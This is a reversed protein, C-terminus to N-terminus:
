HVKYMLKQGRIRFLTWTIDNQLDAVYFLWLTDMLFKRKLGLHGSRDNVNLKLNLRQKM